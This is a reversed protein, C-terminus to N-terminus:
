VDRVSTLNPPITSEGGGGRSYGGGGGGYGGGGRSYGGDIERKATTTSIFFVFSLFSRSRIFDLDLYYLQLNSIRSEM